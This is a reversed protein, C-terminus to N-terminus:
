TIRYLSEPGGTFTHWAGMLGARALERYAERTDDTPTSRRKRSVASLIANIRQPGLLQDVM